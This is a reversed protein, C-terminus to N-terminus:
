AMTELMKFSVEYLTPQNALVKECEDVMYAGMRGVEQGMSGAIHPTLFVNPMTNFPSDDDPPEPFTVDLVATRDPQENLARILDGEVIQAGRGTNIFAATPLMSSFLKYDLMGVTAPLNAIHNSVIQCTAFIEDLPARKAGYQALVEDSVYPDYVLVEYEYARLRDLMMRGIMGAGLIGVRIGYNCPLQATYAHSAARGDREYRRMGQFFGKGALVIQAVAYEAVPVANAAWASFVRVGRNLFPRAFYQVTGAGYFVAELKPLYREIQEQTLSPMGWTAFIYQAKALDDARADLDRETIVGPALDVLKELRTQTAQAYVRPLADGNTMFVAQKRM